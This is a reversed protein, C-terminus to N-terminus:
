MGDIKAVLSRTIAELLRPDENVHKRLRVNQEIRKVIYNEVDNDSARVEQSASGSFQQEIDPIRRSTCLLHLRLPLKRIETILGDRTGENSEDLADIVLFVNSFSAIILRLLQSYGTLSPRSGLAIHDSYM